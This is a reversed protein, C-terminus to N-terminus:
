SPNSPLTKGSTPPIIAILEKVADKDIRSDKWRDPAKGNLPFDLLKMVDKGSRIDEVWKNADQTSVGEIESKDSGDHIRALLAPWKSLTTWTSPWETMLIIWLVLQRWRQTDPQVGLQLRAVEQFLGISNIIRKIQRPNAPLVSSIPELRHKTAQQVQEDAASRLAVKRDVTKAIGEKVEDSVGALEDIRQRLQAAREDRKVPDETEELTTIEDRVDDPLRDESGGEDAHVGLIKRVYTSREDDQVDPLVLSLQIAKEVFRGGFSHEPGVDIEKMAEHTEAFAKEIWDRDGLLLFCIRPSRLITQMGRVLEVVFEPNCRDIDDVVVLVPRGTRTMTKAFHSRFRELPDGSGLSFNKAALPTGPLLSESISTVMAWVVSAGGVILPTGAPLIQPLDGFPFVWMLLGAIGFVVIAVLLRAKFKPNFLRWWFERWWCRILTWYRVAWSSKCDTLPPVIGTDKHDWTGTRISHFIQKYIAQYFCWWPPEVHQHQWANFTVIFWPRHFAAPWSNPDNLPIDKLFQPPQKHRYPNLIATLYNAFSTKGGGWPADIHVVFSPESDAIPTPSARKSDIAGRGNMDNWIRNLRAALMFALDARGLHDEYIEPADGILPVEGADLQVSAQGPRLGKRRKEQLLAHIAVAVKVPMRYLSFNWAPPSLGSAEIVEERGIPEDDYFEAAKTLVRRTGDDDRPVETSVVTGTGVIGGRDRGETVSRWYVVADGPRMQDINAKGIRWPVESEPGIAKVWDAVKDDDQTFQALWVLQDASARKTPSREPQWRVPEGVAFKAIDATVRDPSREWFEPELKSIAITLEEGFFDESKGGRTNPLLKRYWELWVGWSGDRVLESSQFGDLVNRVLPPLNANYRSDERVDYLWLPQRILQLGQNERLWRADDTIAEWSSGEGPAGSRPGFEILDVPDKAVDIARQAADIASVCESQGANILMPLSFPGTSGLELTEAARTAFNTLDHEPYRAAAWSVFCARLVPLVIHESANDTEGKGDPDFLRFVLPLM